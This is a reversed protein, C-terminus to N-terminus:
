SIDKFNKKHQSEDRNKNEKGWAVFLAHLEKFEKVRKRSNPWMRYGAREIYKRYEDYEKFIIGYKKCCRKTYADIVFIPKNLAYLMISDATEKGIGWKSLLKERSADLACSKLNIIKGDCEDAIWKAFLKIAKSKQRYYGAPRILSQLKRTNVKCIREPTLCKAKYLNILAKSVNSWVTNQTLIAGVAIEFYSDRFDTTYKKLNCYPIGYKLTPELRGRGHVIPQPSQVVLPWWGQKKYRSVLSFIIKGANM